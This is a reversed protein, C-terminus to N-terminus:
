FHKARALAADGFFMGRKTCGDARSEETIALPVKAIAYGGLAAAALCGAVKLAGYKGVLTIVGGACLYGVVVCGAAFIVGGVIQWKNEKLWDEFEDKSWGM